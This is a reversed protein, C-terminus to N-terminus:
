KSMFIRVTDGKDFASIVEQETTLLTSNIRYTCGGNYMQKQVYAYFEMQSMTKIKGDIEVDVGNVSNFSVYKGSHMLEDFSVAKNMMRLLHKGYDFYTAYRSGIKLDWGDAEKMPLSGEMFDEAKKIYAEKTLIEGQWDDNKRGNDDNNCGSLELHLLRGDSLNVVKTGFIISYGM